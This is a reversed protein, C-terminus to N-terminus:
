AQSSMKLSFWTVGRIFTEKIAFIVHIAFENWEVAFVFNTMEICSTWLHDVKIRFVSKGFLIWIEFTLM